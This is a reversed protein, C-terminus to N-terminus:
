GAAECLMDAIALAATLGPSDIGLCHAVRWDGAGAPELDFVFDDVWDGDRALRARVGAYDPRARREARAPWCRAAAARAREPFGPDVAYDDGREVWRVDPGLRVRGALDLTVHIGLGHAQPVPYVLGQVPPGGSVGAYNGKAFGASYGRRPGLGRTAHYLRVAGAGACNCARRCVLRTAAGDRHPCASSRLTRGLLPGPPM